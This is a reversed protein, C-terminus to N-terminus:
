TDFCGPVAPLGSVKPSFSRAPTGFVAPHDTATLSVVEHRLPATVVPTPPHRRNRSPETLLFCVGGKPALLNSFTLPWNLLTNLQTQYLRPLRTPRCDASSNVSLRSVRQSVLKNLRFSPELLVQSFAPNKYSKDYHSSPELFVFFLIATFTFKKNEYRISLETSSM